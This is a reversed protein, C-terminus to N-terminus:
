GFGLDIDTDSRPPPRVLPGGYQKASLVGSRDFQLVLPRAKGQPDTVWYGLRLLSGDPRREVERAFPYEALIWEGEVGPNLAQMQAFSLTKQTPGAVSSCGAAPLALGALLPLFAVLARHPRIM